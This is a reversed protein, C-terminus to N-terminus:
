VLMLIFIYYLKCGELVMSEFFQWFFPPFDTEFFGMGFVFNLQKSIHGHFNGKYSAFGSEWPHFQFYYMNPPLFLLMCCFPLCCMKRLVSSLTFSQLHLLVSVYYIYCIQFVLFYNECNEITKLVKYVQSYGYIHIVPWSSVLEIDGQM